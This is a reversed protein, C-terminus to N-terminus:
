IHGVQGGAETEVHAVAVAAYISFLTTVPDQEALETLVSQLPEHITVNFREVSVGFYKRLSRVVNRENETGKSEDNENGDVFVAHWSLYCILDEIKM